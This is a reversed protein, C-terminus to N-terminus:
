SGTKGEGGPTASGASPGGHGAARAPAASTAADAETAKRDQGPQQGQQGKQAQQGQQPAKAGSAPQAQARTSSVAQVRDGQLVERTPGFKDVQGKKLILVKDTHQLVSPRQSVIICTIGEQKARHMAAHLIEEGQSDLAANPEDLVLIRPDGYFARALAILQAQGGSPWFKGLQIPTDYGEPLSLIFDHVGARQAAKVALEPPDERRLRAINERVTAEFFDVKQPVYGVHWGRTVPDWVSLDQGDLKVQGVSPELYGVLLKALTSKGAGNPGIIAVTEGPEANIYVGRLIPPQGPQPVYTIRAAQLHGEPRPLPTAHDPLSLEGLRATLRKDAEWGQKLGKWGGVLMDIPQLARGGIIAAAFVVIFDANGSLVLLAGVLLLVIQLIQRASKAIGQHLGGNAALRMNATSNVKQHQGWDQVSQHFLGQARVYEQNRFHMAMARQAAQQAAQQEEMDRAGKIEGWYALALLFLGGIVVTLALLPHIILLVVLFMPLMPFDFIAILGSGGLMNKLATLDGMTQPNPDHQRNLEGAMIVGAMNSELRTAARSLMISRAAMLLGMVSLIVFAALFLAWLTSMNESPLVVRYTNFMFMPMALMSINIFLSYVFIIRMKKKFAAKETEYAELPTM